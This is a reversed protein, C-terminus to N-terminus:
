SPEKNNSVMNDWRACKLINIPMIVNQPSSKLQIHGEAANLHHQDPARHKQSNSCHIPLRIAFNTRADSVNTDTSLKDRVPSKASRLVWRQRGTHVRALNGATRKRALAAKGEFQPCLFNLGKVIYSLSKWEGYLFTASACHSASLMWQTFLWHTNSSIIKSALMLLNDASLTGLHHYSVIITIILILLSNITQRTSPSRNPM